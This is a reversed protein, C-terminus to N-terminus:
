RPTEHHSHRKLKTTLLEVGNERAGNAPGAPQRLSGNAYWVGSQRASSSATARISVTRFEHRDIQIATRQAHSRVITGLIHLKLGCGGELLFPWKIALRISRGTPLADDAQFLIGHSSINVTAGNGRRVVRGRSLMMYEVELRVPYRNRLRRDHTVIEGLQALRLRSQGQIAIPSVTYHEMRNEDTM